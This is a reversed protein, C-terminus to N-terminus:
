RRSEPLWRQTGLRYVCDNISVMIAWYHVDVGRPLLYQHLNIGAERMISSLEESTDESNIYADFRTAGNLRYFAVFQRIDERNRATYRTSGHDFMLPLCVALGHQTGSGPDFVPISFSSANPGSIIRVLSKCPRCIIFASAFKHRHHDPLITIISQTQEESQDCSCRLTPPRDRRVIGLMRTVTDARDFIASYVYADAGAAQWDTESGAQLHTENQINHVQLLERDYLYRQAAIFALVLLITISFCRPITMNLM